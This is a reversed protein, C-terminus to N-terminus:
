PQDGQSTAHYDRGARRAAQITEKDAHHARPSLQSSEGWMTEILTQPLSEAFRILEKLSFIESGTRSMYLRVLPRETWFSALALERGNVM